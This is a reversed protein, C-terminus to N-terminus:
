VVLFLCDVVSSSGASLVLSRYCSHVSDLTSTRAYIEVSNQEKTNKQLNEAALNKCNCDSGGTFFLELMALIFIRFATSLYM